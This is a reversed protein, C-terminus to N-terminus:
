STFLWYENKWGGVCIRIASMIQWETHGKLRRRGDVWWRMRRRMRATTMLLKKTSWGFWRSRSCSRDMRRLGKPNTLLYASLQSAIVVFPEPQQSIITQSLPTARITVSSSPITQRSLKSSQSPYVCNVTTMMIHPHHTPPPHVTCLLRLKLYM